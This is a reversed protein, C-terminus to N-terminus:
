IKENKIKEKQEDIYKEIDKNHLQSIRNRNVFSHGSCRPCIYGMFDVNFM